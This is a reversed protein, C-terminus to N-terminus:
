APLERIFARFADSKPSRFIPKISHGCLDDREVAVKLERETTPMSRLDLILRDCFKAVHDELHAAEIFSLEALESFNAAHVAAVFTNQSKHTFKKGQAWKHEFGRHLVGLGGLIRVISTPRKGFSQKNFSPVFFPTVESALTYITWPWILRESLWGRKVLEANLAKAVTKKELVVDSV